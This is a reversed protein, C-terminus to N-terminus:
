IKSLTRYNIGIIHDDHAIHQVNNCDLQGTVKGASM